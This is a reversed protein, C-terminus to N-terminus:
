IEGEIGEVISKLSYHVQWVSKYQPSHGVTRLKQMSTNQIGDVRMSVDQGM